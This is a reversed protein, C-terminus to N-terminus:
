NFPLPSVTAQGIIPKEAALKHGSEAHTRKALGLAIAGHAPSHAVSTITAVAKGTDDVLKTGPMASEALEADLRYGVLTRNVKGYTRIRAIIEQGIYCGKSYSIARSELNAEPPLTNGDMDCAFRPIGSEIRAIEIAEWGALGGGQGAVVKALRKAAEPLHATPIYFDCGAQGLRDNRMLYWEGLEDQTVQTHAFLEDPLKLGISEIADNTNPGQLSLLGFHPSADVLEVQDAVLNSELRATVTDLLGPEFDLILENELRYINLDAQMKAKANVLAAYCGQGSRLGAVENTVQGNIFKVRDDGLVALCGRATLDILAVSETLHGHEVQIDGYHLAVREGAVTGWEAGHETLLQQLTEEM